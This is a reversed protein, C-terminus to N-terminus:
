RYSAKINWVSEILNFGVPDYVKLECRNFPYYDSGIFYAASLEAFYELEDTSAYAPALVRGYIDRQSLYLSANRSALWADKSKQYNENWNKFHWAHALEHSLAKQLWLETLSIFDDVSYIVVAHSWKKDHLSYTPGSVKPHYRLINNEGGLKARPGIMIYFNIYSNLVELGFITFFFSSLTKQSKEIKESDIQM